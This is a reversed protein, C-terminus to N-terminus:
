VYSGFYNNKAKNKISGKLSMQKYVTITECM